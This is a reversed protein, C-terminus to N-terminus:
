CGTYRVEVSSGLPPIAGIAFVVANAQADYTWLQAHTIPDAAPVEAGDVLVQITSPTPTRTLLFRRKLPPTSDALVNGWGPECISTVTGTTAHSLAIYRGGAQARGGSGTCGSPLPGVIASAAVAELGLAGPLWAFFGIYDTAPSGDDEDSLFVVMLSAGPRVFGANTGSRLPESLAARAAEQGMETPSGGTGLMVRSAAASAAAPTTSDIVAPTGVLAGAAAAMDMSTVGIHFDLGRRLAAEVFTNMEMALFQQEEQMSCSSDVVLLIDVRRSALQAFRDRTEVSELGEGSVPVRVDGLIRDHRLIIEGSFPGLAGPTFSVEFLAREEHLLVLPLEPGALTFATSTQASLMAETLNASLVGRNEVALTSRLTCRRGVPGLEVRVPDIILESVWLPGVELANNGEDAEHVSDTPDVAARLVYGAPALDAPLELAGTATITSGADLPALWVEALVREAAGPGGGLAVLSLRIASAGAPERTSRNRVTFRANLTEGPSVSWVEPLLSEVLLDAIEPPQADPQEAADADIPARDASGGGSDTDEYPTGADTRAM